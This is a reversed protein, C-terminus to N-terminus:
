LLKPTENTLCSKGSKHQMAYILLFVLLSAWVTLTYKTPLVPLPQICMFWCGMSISFTPEWQLDKGKTYGDQGGRSRARSSNWPVWRWVVQNDRQVLKTTQHSCGVTLIWEVIVTWLTTVRLRVNGINFFLFWFRISVNRHSSLYLLCVPRSWILSGLLTHFIDEWLM